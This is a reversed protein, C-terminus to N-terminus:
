ENNLWGKQAMVYNPEYAINEPALENTVTIEQHGMNYFDCNLIIIKIDMVNNESIGLSVVFRPSNMCSLQLYDQESLETGYYQELTERSLTENAPFIEQVVAGDINLSLRKREHRDLTYEKFSIVSGKRISQVCEDFTM